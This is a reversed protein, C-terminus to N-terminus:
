AEFYYKENKFVVLVNYNVLEDLATLAIDKEGKVKELIENLSLGAKENESLLNLITEKVRQVKKYCCCKGM